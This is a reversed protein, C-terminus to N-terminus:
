RFVNMRNRSYNMQPKPNNNEWQNILSECDLVLCYKLFKGDALRFRRSKARLYEHNDNIIIDVLMDHNSDIMSVFSFSGSYYSIKTFDNSHEFFVYDNFGYVEAKSVMESAMKPKDSIDMAFRVSGLCASYGSIFIGLFFVKSDLVSKM